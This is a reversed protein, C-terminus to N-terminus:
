EQYYLNEYVGNLYDEWINFINYYVYIEAFMMGVVYAVLGKKATKPDVAASLIPIMWVM